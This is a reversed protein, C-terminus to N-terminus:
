VVLLHSTDYEDGGSTIGYIYKKKFLVMFLPPFCIQIGCAVRLNRVLSPANVGLGIPLDITGRGSMRRLTPTM